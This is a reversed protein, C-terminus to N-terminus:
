EALKKIEEESIDKKHTAIFWQNGSFDSVGATRDGYFEDIPEKLSTAGANIAKQYILDVDNIYLHLM